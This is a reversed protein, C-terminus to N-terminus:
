KPKKLKIKKLVNVLGQHGTDSFYKFIEKRFKEKGRGKVYSELPKGSGSFASAALEPTADVTMNGILKAIGVAQADRQKNFKAFLEKNKQARKKRKVKREARKTKRKTRRAERRSKKSRKVKPMTKFFIIPLIVM